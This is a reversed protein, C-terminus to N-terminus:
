LEDIPRDVSNPYLLRRMKHQVEGEEGQDSAFPHPWATLHLVDHALAETQVYDCQEVEDRDAGTLEWFGPGLWMEAAVVEVFGLRITRRGPNNTVDIITREVPPPLNNSVKPLHAHVRGALEYSQIDDTTQWRSYEKDLYFAQLFGDVTSLHEVWHAWNVACPSKQDVWLLTHQPNAIPGFDFTFRETYIGFHPKPYRRISNAVRDFTMKRNMQDYLPDVLGQQELVTAILGWAQNKDISGLQFIAEFDYLPM